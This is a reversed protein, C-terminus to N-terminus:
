ADDFLGARERISPHVRQASKSESLAGGRLLEIQQRKVIKYEAGGRLTGVPGDDFVGYRTQTRDPDIGAVPLYMLSEQMLRHQSLRSDRRLREALQKPKLS